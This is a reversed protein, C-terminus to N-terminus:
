QHGRCLWGVQHPSRRAPRRPRVAPALAQVTSVTPAGVADNASAAIRSSILRLQTAYASSDPRLVLQGTEAQFAVATVHAPLNPSVAAAIAPWQGLISGM